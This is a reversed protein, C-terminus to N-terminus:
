FIARGVRVMTSGEQIAVEYDDSMGMSLISFSKNIVKIEDFIKKTEAFSKRIEKENESLPGITMLGKVILGPMKKIKEIADAADAPKFGYKSEEGSSNVEILVKINKGQKVAEESIREAIRISDVSDIADFIEVAVAAKNRQLHGILRFTVSEPILSKKKQAEQVRNEGIHVAGGMIAATIEEESRYKSVVVLSIDEGSRGVSEASASIRELVENINEAIRNQNM